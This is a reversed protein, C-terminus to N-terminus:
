RFGKRRGGTEQGKTIDLNLTSKTDVSYLLQFTFHLSLSSLFGRRRRSFFPRKFLSNASGAEFQM